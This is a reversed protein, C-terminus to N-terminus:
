FSRGVLFKQLRTEEHSQISGRQFKKIKGAKSFVIKTFFFFFFFPMVEAWSLARFQSNSPQHLKILGKM